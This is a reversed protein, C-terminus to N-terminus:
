DTIFSRSRTLSTLSELQTSTHSPVLREDTHSVLPTYEADTQEDKRRECPVILRLPGAVVLQPLLWVM